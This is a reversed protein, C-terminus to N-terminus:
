LIAPAIWHNVFILHKKSNKLTKTLYKHSEAIRLRKINKTRMNLKECEKFVLAIKKIRNFNM